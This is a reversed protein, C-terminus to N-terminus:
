NNNETSLSEEFVKITPFEIHVMNLIRIIDKNDKKANLYILLEEVFTLYASTM